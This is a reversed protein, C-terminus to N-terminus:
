RAEEEADRYIREGTEEVKQHIGGVEHLEEWAVLPLGLTKSVISGTAVARVMLSCYLHTIGFGALNQTDYGWAKRADPHGYDRLFQALKRAQQRGLPSLEPDPRREPGSHSGTEAYLQNNESQAHRIFYLRM